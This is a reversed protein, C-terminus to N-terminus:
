IQRMRLTYTLTVNRLYCRSDALNLCNDISGTFRLGYTGYVLVRSIDITHICDCYTIFNQISAFYKILCLNVAILKIILGEAFQKENMEIKFFNHEATTSSRVALNV